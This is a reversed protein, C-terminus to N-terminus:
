GAPGRNASGPGAAGACSGSPPASLPKGAPGSHCLPDRRSYASVRASRRMGPLAVGFCAGGARRRREPFLPFSVFPREAPSWVGCDAGLSLFMTKSLSKQGGQNRMERNNSRERDPIECIPNGGTPGRGDAPTVLPDARYIPITRQRFNFKLM